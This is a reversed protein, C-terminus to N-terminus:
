RTTDPFPNKLMNGSTDIYIDNTSQRNKEIQKQRITAASSKLSEPLNQYMSLLIDFETAMSPEFHPNAGSTRFRSQYAMNGVGYAQAETPSRRYSEYEANGSPSSYMGEAFNQYSKVDKKLKSTDLNGINGYQKAFIQESARLYQKEQDTLPQGSQKKEQIVQATNMLLNNQVAHTMEHALTGLTYEQSFKDRGALTADPAVLRNIDPSFLGSANGVPSINNHKPLLGYQNLVEYLRSANFLGDAM